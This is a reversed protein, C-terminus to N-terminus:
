RDRCEMSTRAAIERSMARAADQANAGFRIGVVEIGSVQVTVQYAKFEATYPDLVQTDVTVWVMIWCWVWELWPINFPQTKTEKWDTIIGTVVFDAALPQATKCGKKSLAIWTTPVFLQDLGKYLVAVEFPYSWLWCSLDSDLTPM